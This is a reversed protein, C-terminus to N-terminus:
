FRTRGKDKIWQRMLNDFKDQSMEEAQIIDEKSVSGEFKYVPAYNISVAGGDGSTGAVAYGSSAIRDSLTSLPVRSTGMQYDEIREALLKVSAGIASDIFGGMKNWLDSLPLIAEAGAEGGVMANNGNIGFLTPNTMIGGDKYWEVGMTPVKPPM